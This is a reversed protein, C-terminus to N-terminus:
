AVWCQGVQSTTLHHVTFPPLHPWLSKGEEFIQKRGGKRKRRREDRKYGRQNTKRIEDEVIKLL